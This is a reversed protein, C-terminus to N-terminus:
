GNKQSTFSGVLKLRDCVSGLAHLMDQGDETQVDGDLEMYFYYNWMLEKMPRSKLSCMNFGHAGIINLTKALAGAENKVTFTLIFHRGMKAKANETCRSRSFAAFRTTNTSSSNIHPEILKLGFLEASELSAIAAISPDKKEAVYRAAMATNPFENVSYGNKRIFASCQSIAQPHSVVERISERTTGECGLLNQVAAIEVVQNVYLSGAFMLDMVNAVDGAFSNEIPLVACDTQNNECSRYTDEFNSFAVLSAGPFMQKAAIHAFAGPVGCYAVRIGDFIRCQYAKSTDMLGQQFRTYYERICDDKILASNKAIVEAERVPDSISIAHEKKWEAVKSCEQMREEFLKAMQADLSNIRKRIEELNDM